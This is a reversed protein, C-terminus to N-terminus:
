KKAITKPNRKPKNKLEGVQAGGGFYFASTALEHIKSATFSQLNSARLRQLKSIEVYLVVLM